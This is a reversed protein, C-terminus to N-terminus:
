AAARSLTAHYSQGFRPSDWFLFIDDAHNLCSRLARGRLLHVYRNFPVLSSENDPHKRLFQAVCDQLIELDQLNGMRRQYNGLRRLQKKSLGTFDPSLAEVMYRFKKFAVRTRHITQVDAPNITQRCFAAQRFADATASLLDLAFLERKVRNDCLYDLEQCLDLIWREMKRCKFLDAKRAIDKVLDHERQRLFDRVLILSPFRTEQQEIFIRQVQTDRLKGLPKLHHKLQKRAKSAKDGSVVSAVLALHSMLRRTALRLQHVSIESLEKKCEQIQNRYSKWRIRLSTALFVAPNSPISWGVSFSSRSSCTKLHSGTRAKNSNVSDSFLGRRIKPPPISATNSASADTPDIMSMSGNTREETAVLM